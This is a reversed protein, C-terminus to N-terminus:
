EWQYPSQLTIEPPEAKVPKTNTPPEKAFPVTLHIQQDSLGGSEKLYRRREMEAVHHKSRITKVLIIFVLGIGLLAAIAPTSLTLM